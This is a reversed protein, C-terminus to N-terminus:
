HNQFLLFSTVFELKLIIFIKMRTLTYRVGDDLAVLTQFIDDRDPFRKMQNKIDKIAQWIKDLAHEYEGRDVKQAIKFILENFREDISAHM